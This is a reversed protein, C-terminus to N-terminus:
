RPADRELLAMIIKAVELPDTQGTLDLWRIDGEKRFWTMQRKAFRRTNRKILHVAADFSLRGELYELMERYGLSRRVVQSGGYGRAVLEKVEDLLGQSIMEDVRADIFAYLERRQRNLGIKLYELGIPKARAELESMPKGTIEYVELARIIRVINTPDIQNAKKPDVGRLRQWLYHSGRIRGEERLRKRLAPQAEPGDFIGRTLARIYLGSGGVVIPLKGRGLIDEIAERAEQEFRKCTYIEDPNVIDILHYRVETRMEPTPKATGVDMMRYFLRSDASVIEGGTLGALEHGVATKGVGTPGVIIVFSKKGRVTEHVKKRDRGM